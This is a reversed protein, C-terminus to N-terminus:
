EISNAYALAKNVTTNRLQTEWRLAFQRMGRVGQAVYAPTGVKGLVQGGAFLNRIDLPDVGAAKLLRTAKINILSHQPKDEAIALLWGARCYATGCAMPGFLKAAETVYADQFYNLPAAEISKCVEECLDWLTEPKTM